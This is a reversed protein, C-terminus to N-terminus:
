LMFSFYWNILNEGFFFSVVTGFVLFPGFPIESDIKKKKLVILGLGIIAGILSALFLSVFINPFGLFLGMFFVLKVDGFGLWKGKSFFWILFFFLSAGLCSYIVNFIQHNAYSSFFIGTMLYWIGSTLIAPYIIKDPIIYHKLDYVFTVILFSFSCLIYLLYFYYYSDGAILESSLFNFTLLFIFGTTLEVLPYQISIPKGCYRCKGKLFLFSFVPVLDGWGLKHNCYLCHSGPFLFSEKKKLRYIVLNLFSGITLGLLFFSLTLIYEM